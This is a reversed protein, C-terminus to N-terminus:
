ASLLYDKLYSEDELDEETVVFGTRFKKYDYVKEYLNHGSIFDKRMDQLKKYFKNNFEYGIIVRKTEGEDEKNYLWVENENKYYLSKKVRIDYNNLNIYKSLIEIFKEKPM